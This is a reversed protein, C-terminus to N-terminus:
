HPLRRGEKLILADALRMVQHFPIRQASRREQKEQYEQAVRQHAINELERAVARFQEDTSLVM